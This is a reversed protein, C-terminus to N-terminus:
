IRKLVTAGNIKTTLSAKVIVLKTHSITEAKLSSSPLSSVKLFHNKFNCSKM